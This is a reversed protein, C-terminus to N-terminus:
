LLLNKIVRYKIRNKEKLEKRSKRGNTLGAYSVQFRERKSRNTIEAQIKGVKIPKLKPKWDLFIKSFVQDSDQLIEHTWHKKLDQPSEAINIWFTKGGKRWRIKQALNIVMKRAGVVEKRLSTGVVLLLDGTNLDEELYEMEKASQGNYLEIDPVIKGSSIPRGFSNYPFCEPCPLSKGTKWAEHISDNVNGKHTEILSCKYRSIVGHLFVTKDELRISGRPGTRMHSELFDINQSYIRSLKGELLLRKFFQHTITSESTLEM